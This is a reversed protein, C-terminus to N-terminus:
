LFDTCAALTTTKTASASPIDKPKSIKTKSSFSSARRIESIIWSFVSDKNWLTKSSEDRRIYDREIGLGGPLVIRQLDSLMLYGWEWECIHCFGFLKWDGDEQKEAETILWTGAGMPNFYKVLVEAKLGKGDQSYIPHEEFKRIIQKTLLEM